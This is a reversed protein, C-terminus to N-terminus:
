DGRLGIKQRLHRDLGHYAQLALQYDISRTASLDMGPQQSEGAELPRWLRETAKELADVLEFTDDGALLSVRRMDALVTKDFLPTALGTEQADPPGWTMRAAMQPVARPLLEDFLRLRASRRFERRAVYISASLSLTGGIVAGVLTELM